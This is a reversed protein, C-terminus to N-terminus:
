ISEFIFSWPSTCTNEFTTM